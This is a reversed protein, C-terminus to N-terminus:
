CSGDGSEAWQCRWSVVVCRLVPVSAAPRVVGAIHAHDVPVASLLAREQGIFYLGFPIRRAAVPPLSAPRNSEPPKGSERSVSIVLRLRFFPSAAAFGTSEYLCGSADPASTGSAPKCACM